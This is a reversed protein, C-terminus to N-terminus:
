SLEVSARHMLFVGGLTIIGGILLYLSLSESLFIVSFFVTLLPSLNSFTTIRSVQLTKLVYYWVFYALYAVVISLFIFGIIGKYTLYQLTLNPADYIFLPIYAICGVIFVATATKLAGYKAIFEKGFALYVSFTFVAGVLLFDGALVNRDASTHKISEYFVFFIGTVTLLIAIMKSPYFKESKRAVSILYAFVPNLSYIIGSHSAFSLKVGTLFFFQNFPISLLGMIVLKLYDSKDFKLNQKRLKLTIFFLVAALGFRLFGLSIPSIEAVSLKAFIPTLAGALILFALLFYNKM